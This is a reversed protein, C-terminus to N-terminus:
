MRDFYENSMWYLYGDLDYVDVTVGIFKDHTIDLNEVSSFQENVFFCAINLWSGTSETILNDIMSKNNMIDLVHYVEDDIFQIKNSCEKLTKDTKKACSDEFIAVGNMTLIKYVTAKLIEYSIDYKCIGGKEFNYSDKKKINVPPLYTFLKGDNPNILTSIKKAITNGKALKSILYKQESQGFIKQDYNM